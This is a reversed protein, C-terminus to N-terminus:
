KKMQTLTTFTGKWMTYRTNLVNGFERYPYFRQFKKSLQDTSIQLAEKSTSLAWCSELPLEELLNPKYSKTKTNILINYSEYKLAYLPFLSSSFSVQRKYRVVDEIDLVFAVILVDGRCYFWLHIIMWEGLLFHSTYSASHTKPFIVIPLRDYIYTLPYM